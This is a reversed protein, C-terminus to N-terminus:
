VHQIFFFFQHLHSHRPMIHLDIPTPRLQSPNALNISNRWPILDWFRVCRRDYVPGIFFVYGPFIYVRLNILLIFLFRLPLLVASVLSGWDIHHWGQGLLVM